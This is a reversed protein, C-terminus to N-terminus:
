KLLLEYADNNNPLPHKLGRKQAGTVALEVLSSGPQIEIIPSLDLIFTEEANPPVPESEEVITPEGDGVVGQIKHLAKSNEGGIIDLIVDTYEGKKFPKNGTQTNKAEALDKTTRASLNKWRFKVQEMGGAVSSGVISAYHCKVGELLAHTEAVTFNPGKSDM